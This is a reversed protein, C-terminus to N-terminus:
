RKQRLSWLTKSIMELSTGTYDALWKLNAGNSLGASTYPKLQKLVKVVSPLLKINRDSDETKPLGEEDVSSSKTKM